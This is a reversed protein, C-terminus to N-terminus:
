WGGTGYYAASEADYNEWDTGWDEWYKQEAYSQAEEETPHYLGCAMNCYPDFCWGSVDVAPM